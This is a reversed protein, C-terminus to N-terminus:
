YGREGTIRRGAIEANCGGGRACRERRRRTRAALIGGEAAVAVPTRRQLISITWLKDRANDHHFLVHRLGGGPTVTFDVKGRVSMRGNSLADIERNRFVLV